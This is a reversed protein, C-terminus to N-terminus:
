LIQMDLHVANQVILSILYNLTMKYSDGDEHNIIVLGNIQFFIEPRKSLLQVEPINKINKYLENGKFNKKM